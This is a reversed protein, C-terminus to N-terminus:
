RGSLTWMEEYVSFGFCTQPGLDGSWFMPTPVETLFIILDLPKMKNM